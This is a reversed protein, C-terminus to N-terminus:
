SRECLAEASGEKYHAKNVRLYLANKKHPHAIAEEVGPLKEVKQILTKIDTKDDYTITLTVHYHLQNMKLAVCFWILGILANVIFIAQSGHHQYLLGALTGGAFIGLFQCSSYVGMATGKATMSAQKSVLSPLSAELINFVVFYIFMLICLALWIPSALALGAQALATILVASLFVPKMKKQREALMIPPLMAIFSVVLIPLYFHWPQSLRGASIEEQLRLPIAFFTSTLILHQSFIGLDLRTLHPNKLVSKLRQKNAITAETFPEKTPTPIVVLLLVFAIAIFILTLYFIGSLGAYEVVLPSLVFALSFSLAITGGIMAMAATRLDDPTLDALLAILVSGVAGTGQLTRAIIMGTMTHTLAGMLSGLAFLTLGLMLIPKRGFKDSLLGMPIQLMGQSLGYSGLAIGILLPTAGTLSKAYVSFVPILMFLGLMRFSFIAAIPM